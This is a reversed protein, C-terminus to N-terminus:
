IKENSEGYLETWSIYKELDKLNTSPNNKEIAITIDEFTIPPITLKEPEELQDLTINFAGCSECVKETLNCKECSPFHDVFTWQGNKNKIFQKALQCRRVPMLLADRLIINIDSGSYNETLQGFTNYENNEITNSIDSLFNRFMNIRDWKDPLPIYIRREFRRRFAPDLSWPTNTAGLVLVSSNKSTVGQMQVLLETKVRRTSEQEGDSRDGALSDIEDIFIISPAHERAIDFLVRITKESEGQWKSVIDSSSVSFFTSNSESAMAKALFSKGTGPPGYLLIGSWPKRKGTFLSPFRTPLIIAEKLSDKAGELGIVDELQVTNENIMSSMIRKQINETDSDIKGDSLTKNNDEEKDNEELADKIMEARKIYTDVKILLINRVSTNKEYKISLLLHKVGDIYLKLASNRDSEDNDTEVAKNICNIGVERLLHVNM